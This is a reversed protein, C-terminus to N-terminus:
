YSKMQTHGKVESPTRKPLPGDRPHPETTASLEPFSHKILRHLSLLLLLTTPLFLSIELNLEYAAALEFLIMLPCNGTPKEELVDPNENSLYYEHKNLVYINFIYWLYWPLAKNLLFNVYKVRKTNRSPTKLVLQVWVSRDHAHMGCVSNWRKDDNHM